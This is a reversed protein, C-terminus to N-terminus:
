VGFYFHGDSGFYIGGSVPNPVSSQSAITLVGSKSVKFVEISASTVNFPESSGNYDLTLSGTIQLDNTTSYISGTATFIGSDLLNTIANTFHASGTDLTIAVSGSTGGGTLGTGAIVATIDGSGSVGGGGFGSFESWSVTPAFTSIYNPPTITAQYTSSASEVWVIQGESVRAFPIDALETYQAVTYFAGKIFEIDALATGSGTALPTLELKNGFFPM